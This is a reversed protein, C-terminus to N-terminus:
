HDSIVRSVNVDLSLFKEIAKNSHYFFTINQKVTVNSSQILWTVDPPFSAFHCIFPGVPRYKFERGLLRRGVARDAVRGRLLIEVM